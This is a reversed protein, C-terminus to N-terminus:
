GALVDAKCATCDGNCPYYSLKFSKKNIYLINIM